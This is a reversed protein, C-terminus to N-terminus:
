IPFIFIGWPLFKIPKKRGNNCFHVVKMDEQKHRGPHCIGGLIVYVEVQWSSMYRASYCIGGLIVYAESSSM